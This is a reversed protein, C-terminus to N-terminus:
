TSVKRLYEERYDNPTINEIKKFQKIFYTDSSYGCIESIESVPLSTERLMAKAKEVRFIILEEIISKGFFDKYNKQLTSRSISLEECMKDINWNREPFKELKKRLELLKEYMHKNGNNNPKYTFVTCNAAEGILDFIDDIEKIKGAKVTCEGLTFGLVSKEGIGSMKMKKLIDSIREPSNLIIGIKSDTIIGCKENNELFDSLCSVSSEIMKMLKKGGYKGYLLKIDIIECCVFYLERDKDQHTIWEYLGNMNLVESDTIYYIKKLKNKYESLVLFRDLAAELNRMFYMYTTDYHILKKGYSLAAIGFFNDGAHISSIYFASTKERETGFYSAISGAKFSEGDFSVKHRDNKMLMPKLKTELDFELATNISSHLGNLYEESLFINFYKLDYIMYSHFNVRDIFSKIDPQDTLDFVMDSYNMHDKYTEYMKEQRRVKSPVSPLTRCGCSYGEIFGNNRSVARNSLKGTIQRHLRRMCDAGLQFNDRRFTTLAIGPNKETAWGDYGTVAIDSPVHIGNSEFIEILTYAMVDNGCAIADPKQLEGSIIRRAYEKPYNKWFDGYEYYSKDFNISHNKMSAFYGKLREESQFMGKTGTLCYIRRYGHVEILHDVITKFDDFDDSQTFDFRNDANGDAVMVYKGTQNMLSEIYKMTRKDMSSKSKCYIYGDFDDSLILKYIEREMERHMPKLTFCFHTLPALIAVDCGCLQSQSIIGSITDRIFQRTCDATVVCILPRKKM